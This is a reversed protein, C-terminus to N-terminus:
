DEVCTRQDQALRLRGPCLCRFSGAKLVCIHSCGQGECPNNVVNAAAVQDQSTTVVALHQIPQNQGTYVTVVDGGTVSSRQLNWTGLNAWYISQNVTVLGVPHAVSLLSAVIGYDSGNRLCSWITNDDHGAWYLRDSDFDISIGRPSFAGFVEKPDSGDMKASYIGHLTSIFM